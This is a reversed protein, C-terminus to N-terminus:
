QSVPHVLSHEKWQLDKAQEALRKIEETTKVVDKCVKEMRSTSTQGDEVALPDKRLLNFPNFWWPLGTPERGLCIQIFKVPNLFARWTLPTTIPPAKLIPEVKVYLPKYKEKDTSALASEFDWRPRAPEDTKEDWPHTSM